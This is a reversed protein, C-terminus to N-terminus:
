RGSVVLTAAQIKEDNDTPDNQPQVVRPLQEIMDRQHPDLWPDLEIKPRRLTTSMM